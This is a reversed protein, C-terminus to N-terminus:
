IIFSYDLSILEFLSLDLSKMVHLQIAIIRGVYTKFANTLIVNMRIVEVKSERASSNTVFTRKKDLSLHEFLVQDFLM